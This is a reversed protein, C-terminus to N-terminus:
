LLPETEAEYDEATGYLQEEEAYKGMAAERRMEKAAIGGLRLHAPAYQQRVRVARSYAALADNLSDGAERVRGVDLWAGPDSPNKDAIQQYRALSVPLDRRVFAAVAEIRTEDEPPVVRTKLLDSVRLLSGLAQPQQDLESQAEALGALAQPYDTYLNLAETFARAAGYYAGYRLHETGIRFFEAAGAPAPPLPRPRTVRWAIVGTLAVAGVISAAAIMLQHRSLRGPTQGIGLAWLAAVVDAASGFRDGPEKAVLKAVIADLQPKVAHNISSPAPPTLYVVRAWTEVDTAAQFAPQGTLCEFLVAGLSFLDSRGDLPKRLVQEPSMYAPTGAVAGARTTITATHTVVSAVVDPPLQMQAIGFDLLKPRGDSM